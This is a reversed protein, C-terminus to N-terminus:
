AATDLEDVDSMTLRYGSGYVTILRIGHRGDLELRNRLWSIHTDLRRNSAAVMSGWVLLSLHVRDVNRGPNMFFASLVQFHKETLKQRQGAVRVSRTSADFEYAGVRWRRNRTAQHHSWKLWTATRSVIEGDRSASSLHENAGAELSDLRSTSSEIRSFTMIPVIDGFRIRLQRIADITHECTSECQVIFLDAPQAHCATLLQSASEFRAPQYGADRLLREIYRHGPEGDLAAAGRLGMRGIALIAIRPSGTETM